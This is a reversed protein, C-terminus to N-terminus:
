LETDAGRLTSDDKRNSARPYRLEIDNQHLCRKGKSATVQSEFSAISAEWGEQRYRHFRELAIAGEMTHIRELNLDGSVRIDHSRNQYQLALAGSVV